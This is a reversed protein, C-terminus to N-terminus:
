GVVGGTPTPAVASPRKWSDFDKWVDKVKSWPSRTAEIWAQYEPSFPNTSPADGRRWREFEASARDSRPPSLPAPAENTLRELLKDRTGEFESWYRSREADKMRKWADLAQAAQYALLEPPLPPLRPAKDPHRLESLLGRGPRGATPGAQLVSGSYSLFEPVPHEFSEDGGGGRYDAIQDQRVHELEHAVIHVLREFGRTFAGPGFEVWSRRGPALLPHEKGGQKTLTPNFRVDALGQTSFGYARIVLWVAHVGLKGKEDNGSAAAYSKLLAEVQPRVADGAPQTAPQKDPPSALLNGSQAQQAAIVPDRPGSERSLHDLQRGESAASLSGQPASRPEASSAGPAQGGSQPTDSPPRAKIEDPPMYIIAAGGSDPQSPRPQTGTGDAAPPQQQPPTPNTAQPQQAQTQGGDPSALNPQPAPGAAPPTTSESPWAQHKSTDSPQSDPPASPLYPNSPPSLSGGQGQPQTNGDQQAPGQTSPVNAGTGAPPPANGAPAAPQPATSIDVFKNLPTSAVDLTAGASVVIQLRDNHRFAGVVPESGDPTHITAVVVSTGETPRFNVATNDGQRVDPTIVVQWSGPVSPDPVVKISPPFGTEFGEAWRGFHADNDDLWHFGPELRALDAAPGTAPPQQAPQSSDALQSGAQNAASTTADAMPTTDQATQAIAGASGALQDNTDAEPWTEYPTGSGPADPTGWQLGPPPSPFPRSEPDSPPPPSQPQPPSAQDSPPGQLPASPTPPSAGAQPWTEYPTGSGPPDPTGWQGTQDYGTPLAGGSPFDTGTGTQDYGTPLAGGSPFDAGSGTQDYGTPLAGGSPFDAGSGTQDYGAPLAGGSPLGAGSGTQDYGTPLAGGSPFGAGNIWGPDLAGTQSQSPDMGPPQSQSPDMGPPQLQSPDPGPPQFQSPDPGPPQFGSNDTM